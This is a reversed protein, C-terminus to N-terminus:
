SNQKKAAYWMYQIETKFTYFNLTQVLSKLDVGQPLGVMFVDYQIDFYTMGMACTSMTQM